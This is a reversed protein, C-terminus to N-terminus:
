EQHCPGGSLSLYSCEVCANEQACPCGPHNDAKCYEDGVHSAKVNALQEDTLLEMSWVSGVGTTVLLGMVVALVGIYAVSKTM